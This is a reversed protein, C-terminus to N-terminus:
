QLFPMSFAGEVFAMTVVGTALGFATGAAIEPWSHAGVQVRAACVGGAVIVAHRIYNSAMTYVAEPHPEVRTVLWVVTVVLAWFAAAHLSMKFRRTVLIALVVTGVLGLLYTAVGSTVNGAGAGSAVVPVAVVAIGLGLILPMIRNSRDRIELTEIRGSLRLWGMLLVPILVFMILARFLVARVDGPTDSLHAAIGLLALPPVILPNFLYAGVLASYYGYSRQQNDDSM